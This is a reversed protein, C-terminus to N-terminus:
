LVTDNGQVIHVGNKDINTNTLTSLITQHRYYVNAFSCQTIAAIPIQGMSVVSVIKEESETERMSRYSCYESRGSLYIHSTRLRIKRGEREVREQILGVCQIEERM